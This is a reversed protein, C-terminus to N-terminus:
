KKNEVCDIKYRFIPKKSQTLLLQDNLLGHSNPSVSKVMSSTSSNTASLKPTQYTLKSANPLGQTKTKQDVYQNLWGFTNNM